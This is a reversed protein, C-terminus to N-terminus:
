EPLKWLGIPQTRGCPVAERFDVIMDEKDLTISGAEDGTLTSHFDLKITDNGSIEMEIGNLFLPKEEYPVIIYEINNDRLYDMMGSQSIKEQYEFDNMLGDVPFISMESFYAIMGPWDHILIRTGPPLIEDLKKATEINWICSYKSSFQFPNYGRAAPNFYESWTRGAAIISIVTIAVIYLAYRFFDKKFFSLIKDSIMSIVFAFNIMGAVYYWRWFTFGFTFSCVYLGHLIVGLNLVILIQRRMKNKDFLVAYLLTAAAAMNM